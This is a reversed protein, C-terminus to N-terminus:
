SASPTRVASASAGGSRGASNRADQRRRARPGDAVQSDRPPAASPPRQDRIAVDMEAPTLPPNSLVRGTPRLGEIVVELHRRWAIVPTGRTVDLVGQVSWLAVAVDEATLEDRVLSHRQAEALLAGQLERSRAIVPATGPVNWMRGVLGSHGALLEGIEWLYLVLGTGGPDDLHREAIRVVDELLRRALEDVLATKNEFRRYVTGLGVQARRAVEEISTEWGHESFVAAAAELVRELNAEADRRLPKRRPPSSEDRDPTM